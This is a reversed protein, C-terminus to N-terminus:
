RCTRFPDSLFLRSFTVFVKKKGNHGYRNGHFGTTPDPWLEFKDLNEHM